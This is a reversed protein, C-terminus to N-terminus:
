GRSSGDAPPMITMIAAEGTSDLCEGEFSGDEQGILTCNIMDGGADFTFTLTNETFLPDTTPIAGMGADPPPIVEMALADEEYSVVVELEFVEGTPAYATGTWTGETLRDDQAAAPGAFAILVAFPLAARILRRSM